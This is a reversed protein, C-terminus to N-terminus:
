FSAANGGDISSASAYLTDFYTKLTSKVNSWTIKRLAGAVTNYFGIEYADSLTDASASHLAAGVNGADTVDALAEIGALKSKEATTFVEEGTDPYKTAGTEIGALKTREALTYVGNTTGDIHNDTDYVNAEVGDPDYVSALMDGASDSTFYDLSNWTTTGDGIKFKIPTADKEIGIEGDSLVPNASAWNAGTDRRIQIRTAM